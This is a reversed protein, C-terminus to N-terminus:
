DIVFGIKKLFESMMIKRILEKKTRCQLKRKVNNIYFEATRPSIRMSVATDRITKGLIAHSVTEVERLTLYANHFTSGLYYRKDDSM